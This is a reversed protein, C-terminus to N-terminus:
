RRLGTQWLSLAMKLVHFLVRLDFVVFVMENVVEMVALEVPQSVKPNLCVQRVDIDYAAFDTRMLEM